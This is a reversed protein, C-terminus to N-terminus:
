PKRALSLKALWRDASGQIYTASYGDKTFRYTATAGTRFDTWDFPLVQQLTTYYFAELTAVQAQTLKLTCSFPLEAGTYRRRAKPPGADNNSELVNNPAGYAATTDAQPDPLTEPWTPNPM